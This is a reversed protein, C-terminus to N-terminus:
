TSRGAPRQRELWSRSCLRAGTRPGRIPRRRHLIGPFNSHPGRIQYHGKADTHTTRVDSYNRIGGYYVGKVMVEASEPPMGRTNRVTGEVWTIEEKGKTWNLRNLTDKEQGVQEPDRPQPPGLVVERRTQGPETLLSIREVAISRQDQFLRLHLEGPIVEEFEFRGEADCSVSVDDLSPQPIVSHSGDVKLGPKFLAPDVKGEVRAFRAM